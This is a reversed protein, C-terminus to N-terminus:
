DAGDSRGEEEDEGTTAMRKKYRHVNNQLTEFDHYGILHNKKKRESTFTRDIYRPILM